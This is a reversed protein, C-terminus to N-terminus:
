YRELVNVSKVARLVDSFADRVATQTSRIAYFAPKYCSLCMSPPLRDAMCSVVAAVKGATALEFKTIFVLQFGNIDVDSKKLQPTMYASKCIVPIYGLTLSRNFLVTKFPM